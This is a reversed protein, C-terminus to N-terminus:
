EAKSQSVEPMQPLDSFRDSDTSSNDPALPRRTFVQEAMRRSMPNSDAVQVNGSWSLSDHFRTRLEIYPYSDETYLSKVELVRM